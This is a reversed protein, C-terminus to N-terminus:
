RGVKRAIVLMEEKLPPRIVMYNGLLSFMDFVRGALSKRFTSSEALASLNKYPSYNCIELVEFDNKELMAKMTRKNFYFLHEGPKVQFRRAAWKSIDPTSIILIGEPKLIKNVLKLMSDPDQLHEIVDGMNVADFSDKKYTKKEIYGCEVDDHKKSCLDAASKNIEIGSVTWGGVAAVDMFTGINCGLDLMKGPNAYKNAKRIMMTFVKRDTKESKTYYSTPSFEGSNYLEKIGKKSPQDECYVLSCSKCMVINTGDKVMVLRKERSGCLNCKEPM